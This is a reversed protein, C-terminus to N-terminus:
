FFSLALVAARPALISGTESIETRELEDAAELAAYDEESMLKDVKGSHLKNYASRQSYLLALLVSEIAPFTIGLVTVALAIHNRHLHPTTALKVIPYITTCALLTTLVLPTIRHYQLAALFLMLDILRFYSLYALDSSTHLSGLVCVYFSRVHVSRISLVM